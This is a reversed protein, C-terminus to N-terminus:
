QRKRRPDVVGAHNRMSRKSPNGPIDPDDQTLIQFRQEPPLAMFWRLVRAMAAPYPLPPVYERLAAHFDELEAYFDRHDQSQPM